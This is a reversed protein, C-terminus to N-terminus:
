RYSGSRYPRWISTPFLFFQAQFFYPQKLHFKVVKLYIACLDTSAVTTMVSQSANLFQQLCCIIRSQPKADSINKGLTHLRFIYQTFPVFLLLREHLQFNFFSHFPNFYKSELSYIGSHIFYVTFLIWQLLNYTNSMINYIFNHPICYRRHKNSFRM